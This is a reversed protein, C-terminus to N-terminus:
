AVCAALARGAPLVSAFRGTDILALLDRGIMVADGRKSRSLAVKASEAQASLELLTPDTGDGAFIAARVVASLGSVAKVVGARLLRLDPRAVRAPGVLRRRHATDVDVVEDADRLVETARAVIDAKGFETAIERTRDTAVILLPLTLRKSRILHSPDLTTM